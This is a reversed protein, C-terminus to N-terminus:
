RKRRLLLGGLALLALSSPEPILNIHSHTDAGNLNITFPTDDVWFGYVQGYGYPGGSVTKVLDHGYINIVASDLGVLYDSIIGGYLNIRGTQIAGLHDITGSVINIVASARVRPAFVTVTGSIYISTEDRAELGYVEGGSLNVRSFDTADLTNIHGASVNVTSADYTAMGEVFGGLMDVVTDDNYVYVSNWEEGPLIQGSSTFIKDDLVAGAQGGASLILGLIIVCTKTKM